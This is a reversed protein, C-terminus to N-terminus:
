KFKAMGQLFQTLGVTADNRSMGDLRLKVYSTALDGFDMKGVSREPHVRNLDEMIDVINEKIGEKEMVGQAKVTWDGIAKKSTHHRESLTNLLSRIRKVRSADESVSDPSNIFSLKEELTATKQNFALVNVSLLLVWLTLHFM